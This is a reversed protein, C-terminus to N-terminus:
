AQRSQTHADCSPAFFRANLINTVVACNIEARKKTKKEFGGYVSSLVPLCRPPEEVACGQASSLRVANM